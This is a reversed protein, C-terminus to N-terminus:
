KYIDKIVQPNAAFFEDDLKGWQTTNGYPDDHTYFAKLFPILRMNTIIRLYTKFIIFSLM